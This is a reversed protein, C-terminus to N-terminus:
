ARLCSTATRSSIKGSKISGWICFGCAPALGTACAACDFGLGYPSEEGQSAAYLDVATGAKGLVVGGKQFRGFGKTAGPGKFCTKLGPWIEEAFVDVIEAAIGEQLGNAHQLNVPDNSAYAYFNPNRGSLGLSDKTIWRGTEPDYDRAGFRVLKTDSDYIGGAFGFPQFGLMSDATAQGFEDYTTEQAIIGTGVDVV